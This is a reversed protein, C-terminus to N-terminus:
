LKGADKSKADRRNENKKVALLNKMACNYRGISWGSTFASHEHIDLVPFVTQFASKCSSIGKFPPDPPVNCGCVTKCRQRSSLMIMAISM